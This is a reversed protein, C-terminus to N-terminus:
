ASRKAGGRRDAGPDLFVVNTGAAYRAAYKGVEANLFDYYKRM